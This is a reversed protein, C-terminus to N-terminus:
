AASETLAGVAQRFQEGRDFEDRFLGFSACGPALLVVDGPTAAEACWEVAAQMSSLVAAVRGGAVEVLRGLEPTATGELLVVTTAHAAITRGLEDMPLQKDFGGAILHVRRDGQAEIAAIAAAPATAATDNIFEVGNIEAVLEGRNAVGTFREMGLRIHAPSAGRLTTAAAAAAANRLQYPGRLLRIAPVEVREVSGGRRIVLERGEVWVGDDPRDGMGFGFRRGAFSSTGQTVYPDDMWAVFWDDPGQFRAISRKTVAYDDFDRYTDLHDPHINTLVAIHPSLRHEDLAELQWSSLELVVPTEPTIQPLQGLASIGMNGAVVTELRWARLMEGCLASTSTKGKTGTIGIVPAPCARLFISMEMEIAVGSARAATLLPNTRRVGPNRIVVDAGGAVFDAEDHGGLVARVPLGALEALPARLEEAPKGDTVTVVAGHEALYRAVGVGGGRTGLGMVTVRKGRWRDREASGVEVTDRQFVAVIGHHRVPSDNELVISPCFSRWM